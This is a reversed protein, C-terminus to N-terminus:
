TTGRKSAGTGGRVATETDKDTGNLVGLRLENVWEPSADAGFDGNTLHYDCYDKLSVHQTDNAFAIFYTLGAPCSAGNPPTRTQNTDDTFRVAAAGQLVVDALTDGVPEGYACIRVYLVTIPVLGVGLDKIGANWKAAPLNEAALSTTPCPGLNAAVRLRHPPVNLLHPPAPPSTHSSM